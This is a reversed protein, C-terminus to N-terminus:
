HLEGRLEADAGSHVSEVHYVTAALRLHYLLACQRSLSLFTCHGCSTATCNFDADRTCDYM